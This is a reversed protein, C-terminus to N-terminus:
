NNGQENNTEIKNKNKVNMIELKRKLERLYTETDVM